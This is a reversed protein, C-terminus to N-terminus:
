EHINYEVEDDKNAIADYEAETGYWYRPMTRWELDGYLVTADDATGGGLLTSTFRGSTIVSAPLNKLSGIDVTTDITLGSPAGQTLVWAITSLADLNLSKVFQAVTDDAQIIFLQENGPTSEIYIFVAWASYAETDQNFVLPLVVTAGSSTIDVLMGGTYNYRDADDVALKPGGSGAVADFRRRANIHRPASYDEIVVRVVTIEGTSLAHDNYTALGDTTFVTAM